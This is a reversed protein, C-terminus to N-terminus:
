LGKLKKGAKILTEDTKAFCFRLLKQDKGDGYFPSIPITAVGKKKVLYKAFDIENLDSVNSYDTLLFYSGKSPLIKLRTSSLQDILLEKKEQFFKPLNLYNRSRNLYDALAYQVPTNVSFVNFQHVKRFEKMLKKPGVAYGVKWGTNHFLKGFSYVAIARKFLEMYKLVSHHKAKDFVIHEYVEDSLLILKKHRKLIAELALMDKKGFITTSPNNPTNIIIMRTKASILKELKEWDIKFRPATLQFPKVIGGNVKVSPGYSDYAPEIIVVEDGHRVFATIATYLAQTAGATVTIEDNIDLKRKYLHEVKLAIAERLNEVGSMPAYQNFGSKMYHFVLKSLKIDGEYNPFGQSLNVAGHKNAMASMVSFISTQVQPLKSNGM